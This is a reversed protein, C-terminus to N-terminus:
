YVDTTFIFKVLEEGQIWAFNLATVARLTMFIFSMGAVNSAFRATSHTTRLPTCVM